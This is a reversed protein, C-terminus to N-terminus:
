RRVLHLRGEDDRRQRDRELRLAHRDLDDVEAMAVAAGHHHPFVPRDFREGIQAPAGDGDRAAEGVLPQDEEARHLRRADLRAVDLHHLHRRGVDGAREGGPWRRM